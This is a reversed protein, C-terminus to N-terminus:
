NEYRSRAIRRGPDRAPLIMAAMARVPVCATPRNTFRGASSTAACQRALQTQSTNLEVAVFRGFIKRNEVSEPDNARKSQAAHRIDARHDIVQLPGPPLGIERRPAPRHGRGPDSQASGCREHGVVDQGLDRGEGAQDQRATQCGVVDGFADGPYAGPHDVDGTTDLRRGPRLSGAFTAANM